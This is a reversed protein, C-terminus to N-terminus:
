GRVKGDMSLLLHHQHSITTFAASHCREGRHFLNSFNHWLAFLLRQQLGQQRLPKQREGFKELCGDALLQSQNASLENPYYTTGCESSYGIFAQQRNGRGSNPAPSLPHPLIVGNM